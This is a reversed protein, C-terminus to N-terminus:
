GQGANQAKRFAKRYHEVIYVRVASSLNAQDHDQRIEIILDNVTKGREEAIDRLAHWMVGELRLSTKQNGIFVSRPTAIRKGAQRNITRM